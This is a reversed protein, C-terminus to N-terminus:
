VGTLGEKTPSSVLGGLQRTLGQSQVMDKFESPLWDWLRMEQLELRMGDVTQTKMVNGAEATFGYFVAAFFVAM